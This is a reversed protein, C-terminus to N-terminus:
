SRGHNSIVGLLQEYMIATMEPEDLRAICVEMWRDRTVGSATAANVAARVLWENKTQRLMVLAPEGFEPEKCQSALENAAGAVRDSNDTMLRKVAPVFVPDLPLPLKKLATARVFPIPHELLERAMAQWGQPRVDAFKKEACLVFLREAATKPAVPLPAERTCMKELAHLVGGSATLPSLYAEQEVPDHQKELLIRDFEALLRPLEENGGLCAILHAGDTVEEPSSKAMLKWGTALIAQRQGDDWAEPPVRRQSMHQWFGRKNLNPTRWRLADRAAASTPALELLLRMAEPMMTAAIGEVAEENGARALKELAPLYVPYHLASLDAYPKRREGFTGGTDEPLKLMQEVVERAQDPTPMVLTLKGEAVPPQQWGLDHSVRITYVGPHEFDCYRILPVSFWYTKGPEISPSWSRGGMCSTSVYPDPVVNGKEDTATVKFRLARPAGRYDGGVNIAVPTNGTNTLTFHALINEGLFFTPQDFVVRAQVAPAHNVVPQALSGAAPLVLLLLLFGLRRM